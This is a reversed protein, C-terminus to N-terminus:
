QPPSPGITVTVTEQPEPRRKRNVYWEPDTGFGTLIVAGFGILTLVFVALGGAFPVLEVLAMILIGLAAALIGNAIPRNVADGVKRGVALGVAIRAFAWAIVVLLAEVAILPIGICSVLLLLAIPLILVAAVVGYLMSPGPRDLVTEAVMNARVPFLAVVLVALVIFLLGKFLSILGGILAFHEWGDFSWGKFSGFFPLRISQTDGGIYGDGEKVVRGGVAVADGDIRGGPMVTVNGMVAVADGTVHGHVVVGGMVSVADSVTEGKRVVVPGSVEVKESGRSGAEASEPENVSLSVPGEVIGGAGRTDLVRVAIVNPQGFRIADGPIRYSRRIDSSAQATTTTQGIPTGNLYAWDMDDIRGLNLYLVKGKLTVPIVVSKQYWAYGSYPVKLDDDKWAPNAEAFGQDEWSGPVSIKKWTAYDHGPKQWGLKQGSDTPDTQFKWDGSLDIRESVINMEGTRVEARATTCVACLAVTLVILARTVITKM